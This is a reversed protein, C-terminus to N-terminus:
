PNFIKNLFDFINKNMKEHFLVRNFGKPDKAPARVSQIREAPFPALFSYHGANKVVVYQPHVPLNRRITDAHYPYHLITDKEARYLLVPVSINSLSTKDKFLVGLPALLVAGKIRQDYLNGTITNNDDFVSSAAQMTRTYTNNTIACFQDDDPHERCHKRIVNGDPIGGILALATYGGASHGIIAVKNIDIHEKCDAETSLWDLVRTVHRPRNIWNTTSSGASFGEYNDQPHRLSIVAYGRKALYMATDNHGLHSGLSGHSIVVLPLNKGEIDSNIAVNLEFPGIKHIKPTSTTPYWLVAKIESNTPSYPISYIRVGVNSESQAHASQGACLFLLLMAPILIYKQM